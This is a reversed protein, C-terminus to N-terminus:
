RHVLAAHDASAPAQAADARSGGVMAVVVAALILGFYKFRRVAKMIFAEEYVMSRKLTAGLGRLLM